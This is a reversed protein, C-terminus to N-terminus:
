YYRRSDVGMFSSSLIASSQVHTHFVSYLSCISTTSNTYWGDVLIGDRLVGYEIEVGVVVVSTRKDEVFKDTAESPGMGEQLKHYNSEM